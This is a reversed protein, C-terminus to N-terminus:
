YLMPLIGFIIFTVSNELFFKKVYKKLFISCKKKLKLSSLQASLKPFVNYSVALAAVLNSAMWFTYMYFSTRHIQHIWIKLFRFIQKGRHLYDNNGNKTKLFIMGFSSFNLLNVTKRHNCFHSGINFSHHLMFYICYLHSKYM